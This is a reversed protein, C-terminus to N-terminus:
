PCIMKQAPAFSLGKNMSPEGPSSMPTDEGPIAKAQRLYRLRDTM